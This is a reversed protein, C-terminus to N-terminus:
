PRLPVLLTSRVVGGDVQTSGVVVGSLEALGDLFGSLFDFLQLMEEFTPTPLNAASEGRDDREDSEGPEGFAPPPVTTGPPQTGAPGAGAGTASELVAASLVVAGTSSGSWSSVVAAYDIGGQVEFVIASRNTSPADDNAAVIQGNTLDFLFLFTDITFSTPDIVEIQVLDGPNLGALDYVLGMSSGALYDDFTIETEVVSPVELVRIPTGPRRPDPGLYDPPYGGMGTPGLDDGSEGYWYEDDYWDDGYYFDDDFGTLDSVMDTLSLGVASAIPTAVLDILSAYHRLARPLDHVTYGVAGRPIAALASQLRPDSATGPAGLRVDIVQRMVAAPTAIVLQGGDVLVGIDLAPAARWRQYSVNRYSVESAYFLPAEGDPGVGPGGFSVGGLLAQLLGTPAIRALNTLGAGWREVAAAAASESSVPLVTVSSVGHLLTRLNADPLDLQATYWSGDWWDLLGADLDFGLFESVLGRLDVSEGTLAASAALWGDLWDVLERIPVAGAAVTAAGSPLAEPTGLLSCGACTLLRALAADGGAPNPALVTRLEMGQSPLAAHVGFSGLTRLSAVLRDTLPDAGGAGPGGGGFAAMLNALAGADVVLSLGPRVIEAAVAGAASSAFSPETSGRALRIAARALDPDSALLVVDDFYALVALGGPEGGFSGVQYLDVGDQQLVTSEEFCPVLADVLAAARAMDTPALLALVGPLPNFQSFSVAVTLPGDLYDLTAQDRHAAVTPCAEALGAVAEGVVTAVFGDFTLDDEGVPLPFGALRAFIERVGDVDLNALAPELVSLDIGRPIHSVVAVTSGPLLNAHLTSQAAAPTVVLLAVAIATIRILARRVTEYRCPAHM